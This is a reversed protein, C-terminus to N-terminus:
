SPCLAGELRHDLWCPALGVNSPAFFRCGSPRRGVNSPVFVRCMAFECTIGAPLEGAAGVVALARGGRSAFGALFGAQAQGGFVEDGDRPYRGAAGVAMIPDREDEGGAGQPWPVERRDGQPGALYVVPLEGGRPVRGAAKVWQDDFSEGLGPAVVDFM